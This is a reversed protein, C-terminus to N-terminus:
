LRVSAASRAPILSASSLRSTSSPIRWGASPSRYLLPSIRFAARIWLKVSAPSGSSPSAVITALPDSESSKMSVGEYSRNVFRVSSVNACALSRVPTGISNSISTRSATPPAIGPGSSRIRSPSSGVMSKTWAWSRSPKRGGAM